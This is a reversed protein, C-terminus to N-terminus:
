HVAHPAQLDEFFRLNVRRAELKTRQKHQKKSALSWPAVLTKSRDNETVHLSVPPPNQNMEVRFVLKWHVQKAPDPAAPFTIEHRIWYGRPARRDIAANDREIAVNSPNWIQREKVWMFHHLSKGVFVGPVLLM